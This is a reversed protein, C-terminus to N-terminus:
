RFAPRRACCTGILRATINGLYTSALRVYLQSRRQAKRAKAAYKMNVCLMGSWSESLSFLVDM